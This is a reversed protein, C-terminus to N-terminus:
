RRKKHRHRVCLTHACASVVAHQSSGAGISAPFNYYLYHGLVAASTHALVQLQVVAVLPLGKKDFRIKDGGFLPLCVFLNVLPVLSPPVMSFFGEM